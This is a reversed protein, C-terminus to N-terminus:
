SVYLMADCYIDERFTVRWAWAIDVVDKSNYAEITVNPKNTWKALLIVVVLDVVTDLLSTVEVRVISVCNIIPIMM